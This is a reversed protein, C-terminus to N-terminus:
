ENESHQAEIQPEEVAFSVCNFISFRPEPAADPHRERHEKGADDKVVLARLATKFKERAIEDFVRQAHVVNKHEHEDKRM